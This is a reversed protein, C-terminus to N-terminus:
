RASARAERIPLGRRAAESKSDPDERSVQSTMEEVFLATSRSSGRHSRRGPRRLEPDLAAPRTGARRPQAVPEPLQRRSSSYWTM